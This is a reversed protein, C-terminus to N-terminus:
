SLVSILYERSRLQDVISSDVLDERQSRSGSPGAADWGGGTGGGGRVDKRRSKADRMASMPAFALGGLRRKPAANGTAYFAHSLQDFPSGSHILNSLNTGRVSAHTYEDIDIEQDNPTDSSTDSIAPSNRDTNM